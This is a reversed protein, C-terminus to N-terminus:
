NNLNNVINQFFQEFNQENNKTLNHCGHCLCAGNSLELKLEPFKCKPKIHHSQLKGGRIGCIRCIYNDRKLVAKRWEKYEPSRYFIANEDSIFGDWQEVPIGQLRSSVIKRNEINSWFEKIKIKTRAIKDDRKLSTLQAEKNTKIKYGFKILKSRITMASLNYKIELDYLSLGNYYDKAIKDINDVYKLGVAPRHKFSEIIGCSKCRDSTPIRKFKDIKGCDICTRYTYGDEDREFDPQNKTINKARDPLNDKNEEIFKKYNIIAESETLYNGINHYKGNIMIRACWRKQRGPESRYYIGKHNSTAM